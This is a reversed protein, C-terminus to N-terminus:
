KTEPGELTQADLYADLIEKDILVRRGIKRIAGARKAMSCLTTRGIHYYLTGEPEVNLYKQNKIDTPITSKHM